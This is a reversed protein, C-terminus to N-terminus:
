WKLAKASVIPKRGVDKGQFFFADKNGNGRRAVVSYLAGVTWGDEM